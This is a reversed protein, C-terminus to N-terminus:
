TPLSTVIWTNNDVMAKLEDYMAQKWEPIAIAQTFTPSLKDYSLVKQIPHATSYTAPELVSYSVFSCHYDHLYVRARTTRKSRSPQDNVVPVTPTSQSVPVSYDSIARPLVKDDFFEQFSRNSSQDCFPFVTEHFIVNM